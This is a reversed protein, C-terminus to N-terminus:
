GAAQARFARWGGLATIDRAGVLAHAECLFGTPATGDALTVKGVGLPAPIAAVFRGFAAPPLAWVEVELGAGAFGPERVLGPKPPVTDPLAFLRYDAATRTTRVFRGGGDVLQHNLPQGSLHAGVVVIELFGDAPPAIATEGVPERGPGSGTGAAAHWRAAHPALGDDSGQPGILTVGFPLGNARFGSPVAIAAMRCFNVFNTYTGFRANLRVPDARMAEITALTPSTPLLMFDFGAAVTACARLLAELRHLGRFTDAATFRRSNELLGRVTPDFIEPTTDLLGEFEALREALWPGEYLLAAVEAFPAYDFEVVTWGLGKAREIAAAYLWAAEEDGHFQRDKAGLVGVRPTPAVVRAEITRSYPDAADFGDMVRRVAVGDAVSATFVTVCDLSACAPVVGTNPVLGPTPKIGVINNFAAPVRGSGATDTGLAFAALGRAVAIASGSSSGGSVYAPDVANKPAGYPSRTGNLGTAFQDLNTKGVVLAGAAKLRAVVTADREPTYAFAPCAATTALGAVDINDKVAFPVGWLPLAAPDPARDLLARAAARLDDPAVTSIFIAPDDCSAIRAVVEEVVDFVAEPRAAYRAALDALTFLASM